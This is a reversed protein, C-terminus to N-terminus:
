GKAKRWRPGIVALTAEARVVGGAGKVLRALEDARVLDAITLFVEQSESHARWEWKIGKQQPGRRVGTGEV